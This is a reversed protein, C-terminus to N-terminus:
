IENLTVSNQSVMLQHLPDKIQNENMNLVAHPGSTYILLILNSIMIICTCPCIFWPEDMISHLKNIVVYKVRIPM